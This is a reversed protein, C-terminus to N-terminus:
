ALCRVLVCPAAAPPMCVRTPSSCITHHALLRHMCCCTAPHSVPAPPLAAPLSACSQAAAATGLRLVAAVAPLLTTRPAATPQGACDDLPVTQAPVCCGCRTHRHERTHCGLALTATLRSAAGLLCTNAASRMRTVTFIGTKIKEVSFRTMAKVAQSRLDPYTKSSCYTAHMARHASTSRHFGFVLVPRYILTAATHTCCHPSASSHTHRLLLRGLLVQHPVRQQAVGVRHYVM